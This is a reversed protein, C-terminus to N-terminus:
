KVIGDFNHESKTSDGNGNRTDTEIAKVILSLCGACIPYLHKWGPLEIQGVRKAEHCNGCYGQESRVLKM